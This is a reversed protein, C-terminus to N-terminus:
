HLTVLQGASVYHLAGDPGVSLARPGAAQSDALPVTVAQLSGAALRYLCHRAADAAWVTGDPAAVLEGPVAGAPLDTVTRQGSALDMRVLKQAWADVYWLWAGTQVSARPLNHGREGVSLARSDGSAPDYRVVAPDAYFQSYYLAGDQGLRLDEANEAVPHSLVAGSRPDFEGLRDRRYQVFWLRGDPTRTLNNLTDSAAGVPFRKLAGSTPAFSAVSSGQADDSRLTMWVTGDPGCLLSTVGESATLGLPFTHANGSVPDLRLLRGRQEAPANVAAALLVDTGCPVSAAVQFGGAGVTPVPVSNARLLPVRVQRTQTGVRVDLAVSLTSESGRSEATLLAAGSVEVTVAVVLGTPGVAPPQVQLTVGPPLGAPRVDPAGSPLDAASMGPFGLSATASRDARLVAATVRVELASDAAGTPAPNSLVPATLAPTTLEPRAPSATPVAPTGCAGLGLPLLALTLLSLPLLKM